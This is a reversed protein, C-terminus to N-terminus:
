ESLCFRPLVNEVTKKIEFVKLPLNRNRDYSQMNPVQQSPHPDMLM